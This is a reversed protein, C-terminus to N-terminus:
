SEILTIRLSLPNNLEGASEIITKAKTVYERALRYNGYDNYIEAVELLTTGHATSNEGASSASSSLANNLSADFGALVGQALNYRAERIFYAAMYNGGGTKPISSKFKSLTKVAKPYSGAAFYSDAKKLYKLKQSFTTQSFIILLLCLIGKLTTM